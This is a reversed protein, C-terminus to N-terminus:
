TSLECPMDEEQLSMRIARGIPGPRFACRQTAQASIMHTRCERRALSMLNNNKNTFIAIDRVAKATQRRPEVALKKGKDTHCTSSASGATILSHQPEGSVGKM